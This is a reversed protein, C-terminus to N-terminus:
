RSMQSRKTANSQQSTSDYQTDTSTSSAGTDYNTGAGSYSSASSGPSYYGPTSYGDQTRVNSQMRSTGSNNDQDSYGSTDTDQNGYGSTSGYTGQDRSSSSDTYSGSTGYTSPSSTGSYTGQQGNVNSRYGQNSTGSYSGAGMTGPSMTGTGTSGSTMGPDQYPYGQTNYNSRNQGKEWYAQDYTTGANVDRAATVSAKPSPCGGKGECGHAALHVPSTRAQDAIVTSQTGLAVVGMIGLLALEKLHDKNM